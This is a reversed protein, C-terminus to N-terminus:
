ANNRPSEATRAALRADTELLPYARVHAIRWVGDQRVIIDTFRHEMTETGAVGELRAEGDVVAVDETVFSVRVPRSVHRSGRAEGQLFERLRDRISNEGVAVDGRPTVIVADDRFCSVLGEVDGASWARDYASEVALVASEEVNRM